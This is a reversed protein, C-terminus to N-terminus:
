HRTPSDLVEEAFDLVANHILNTKLGPSFEYAAMMLQTLAIAGDGTAPIVDHNLAVIERLAAALAEFSDLTKM